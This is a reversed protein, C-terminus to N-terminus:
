IFFLTTPQLGKANIGDCIIKVIIVQTFLFKKIHTIIPVVVLFTYLTFSFTKDKCFERSCNMRTNM